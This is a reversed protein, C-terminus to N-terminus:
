LYVWNDDYNANPYLKRALRNNKVKTPELSENEAWYGTSTLDEHLLCFGAMYPRNVIYIGDSLGNIWNENTRTYRVKDGSVFKHKKGKYRYFDRNAQIREHIRERNIRMAETTPCYGGFYREDVDFISSDTNSINFERNECEILLRLYRKKLWWFKNYFFKVHGTGMTYQKPIDSMKFGKKSNLSKELYSPMRVIERIEALLHQDTLEDVPIVNIRTM